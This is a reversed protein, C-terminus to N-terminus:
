KHKFFVLLGVLWCLFFDWGFWLGYCFVLLPLCYDAIERVQRAKLKRGLHQFLSFPISSSTRFQPCAKPIFSYQPVLFIRSLTTLKTHKPTSQCSHQSFGLWGSWTHTDVLYSWIAAILKPWIVSCVGPPFNQSNSSNGSVTEILCLIM